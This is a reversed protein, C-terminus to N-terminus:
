EKDHDDAVCVDCGEIVGAGPSQSMTEWPM